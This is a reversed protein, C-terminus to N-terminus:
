KAVAAADIRAFDLEGGPLELRLDAAITFTRTTGTHISLTRSSM